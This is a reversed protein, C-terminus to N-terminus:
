CLVFDVSTLRMLFRPTWSTDPHTPTVRNDSDSRDPTVIVATGRSPYWGRGVSSDTSLAFLLLYVPPPTLM